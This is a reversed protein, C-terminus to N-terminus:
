PTPRDKTGIPIQVFTTSGGFSGSLAGGFSGSFARLITHILVHRIYKQKM